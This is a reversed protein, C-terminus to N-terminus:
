VEVIAEDQALLNAELPLRKGESRRALRVAQQCAARLHQQVVHELRMAECRQQHYLELRGSRQALTTVQWAATLRLGSELRQVLHVSSSKGVLSTAGTSSSGCAPESGSAAGCDSPPHHCSASTGSGHAATTQQQSATRPTPLGDAGDAACGANRPRRSLRRRCLLAQKASHSGSLLGPTGTEQVILWQQQVSHLSQLGGTSSSMTSQRRRRTATGTGLRLQTLLNEQGCRDAFVELNLNYM